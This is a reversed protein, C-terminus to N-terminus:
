VRLLARANATTARAIAEVTTGRITALAEAIERVHRPEVQEPPLEHLAIFPADTELLLRNEPVMEASRGAKSGPRTVAGGLAMHMGLDLFRQALMPEKSYAHIVGRLDPAFERLEVILEDFANRCHLLVPLDLECALGLQVRLVRRQTELSPEEVKTDLGIEGVAVAGCGRIAERLRATDLPEGAAWPHLGIALFVGPRAARAAAKEWSAHDYAPVVVRTVGAGAARALVADVDEALPPEYLHCHTDVLEMTRTYSLRGPSDGQLTPTPVKSKKWSKVWTLAGPRSEASLRILM